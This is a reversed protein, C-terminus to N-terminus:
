ASHAAESRWLRVRNRGSNKADYLAKDACSVLREADVEDAGFSTGGISVTVVLEPAASGAPECTHEVARRLKQAVVEVEDINVGPLIAGFEEGGLRGVVDTRRLSSRLVEAVKRLVVDGVPHGFADNVEKFHDLDLMLLGVAYGMRQARQVELSLLAHFHRYNSLGTLPDTTALRQTEQYLHANQLAVAAGACLLELVKVEEEALEGSLRLELAGLARGGALLPLALELKGPRLRRVAATRDVVARRVAGGEDAAEGLVPEPKNADSVRGARIRPIGESAVLAGAGAPEHSVGLDLLYVCAVDYSVLQGLSDLMSAVVEEPDLASALRTNVEHLVTMHQLHRRLEAYTRALDSAYSELQAAREQEHKLQQETDAPQVVGRRAGMAARM